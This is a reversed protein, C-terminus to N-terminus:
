CLDFITWLTVVKASRIWKIITHNYKKTKSDKQNTKIRNSEIQNKKITKILQNLQKIFKNNSHKTQKPNNQNNKIVKITKITNLGKIKYKFRKWEIEFIFRSQLKM